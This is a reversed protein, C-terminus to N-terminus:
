VCCLCCLQVIVISNHRLYNVNPSIHQCYLHLFLIYQHLYYFFTYIDVRFYRKFPQKSSYHESSLHVIACVVVINHAPQCIPVNAFVMEELRAFQAMAVNSTDEGRCRLRGKKQGFIIM